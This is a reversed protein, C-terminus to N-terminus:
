APERLRWREFVVTGFPLLSAVFALVVDRASWRLARATTSLAVLYVIWLTGHAWGLAGTGGDLHVGLARRLPMAVGMLLILSLGELRAIWVFWARVSAAPPPEDDRALAPLAFVLGGGLLAGVVAAVIMLAPPQDRAVMVASAAGLGAPGLARAVRGPDPRSSAGLAGLLAVASAALSAPVFPELMTRGGAILLGYGVLWVVWLAPTVLWLASRLREARRPHGAALAVGAALWGLAVLKVLRLGLWLEM